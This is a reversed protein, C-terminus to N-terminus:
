HIIKVNGLRRADISALKRQLCSNARVYDVFRGSVRSKKRCRKLAEWGSTRSPYIGQMRELRRLAAAQAVVCEKTPPADRVGEQRCVVTINTRAEYDVAVGEFPDGPEEIVEEDDRQSGMAYAMGMLGLLGVIALFTRM